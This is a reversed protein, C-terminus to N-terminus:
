NEDSSSEDPKEEDEIQKHVERYSLMAETFIGLAHFLCVGAWAVVEYIMWGAFNVRCEDPMEDFLKKIYKSTKNTVKDWDWEPKPHLKITKSEPKKAKSM